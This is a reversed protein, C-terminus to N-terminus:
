SLFDKSDVEIETSKKIPKNGIRKYIKFGGTELQGVCVGYICKLNQPIHPLGKEWLDCLSPEM